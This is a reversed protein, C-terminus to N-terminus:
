NGESRSYIQAWICNIACEIQQEWIEGIVRGKNKSFHRLFIEMEYFIKNANANNFEPILWM